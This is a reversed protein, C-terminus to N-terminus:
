PMIRRGVATNLDLMDQRLGILTNRYEQVVENYERQTDLYDGIKEPDERFNQYSLDRAARAAPLTEQELEALNAQSSRLEEAIAGVQQTVRYEIAKLGVQTQLLNSQARAINGQNRNFVPLAANIGVSYSYTKKLGFAHGEQLTYPQYILYTDSFRNARALTVDAEARRVGLRYAALDPRSQLAIAELEGDPPVPAIERLSGHLELRRAQDEPLFLMAALTRKTRALNQAAERVQFRSQREQGRLEKLADGLAKVRQNEGATGGGEKPKGRAPASRPEGGREEGRAQELESATRAMIRDIGVQFAQSYRLTERAALVNTYASYLSDILRRIEDQLQAETVLKARRAVEIRSRRKASLDLPISVNVDYQPQGGGGGPRLNTYHGYPIFQTDAYFIPNTRLGATLVDAEAKDIEYHLAIVDLNERVLLEIAADLTLGGGPGVDDPTGPLELVPQPALTYADFRPPRVRLRDRLQQDRDEPGGPRNSQGPRGDPIATPGIRGGLFRPAQAGPVNEGVVTGSAGIPAPLLSEDPDGPNQRTM